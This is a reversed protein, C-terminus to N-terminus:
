PIIGRQRRLENVQVKVGLVAQQVARILQLRKELLDPVKLLGREGDRVVAVKKAGNVEIFLGSGVPYLGDDSTFGIECGAATSLAFAQQGMVVVIM